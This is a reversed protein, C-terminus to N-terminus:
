SGRLPQSRLVFRAYVRVVAEDDLAVVLGGARLQARAYRAIERKLARRHAPQPFVEGRRIRTITSPNLGVARATERVNMEKLVAVWDGNWDGADKEVYVILPDGDRAVLGAAIEDLVNAEKGIHAIPPVARVGRRALLGRAHGRANKTEPRTRFSRLVDRYTRVGVVDPGLAYGDREFVSESALTFARGRPDYVNRWPLKAWQAPDREFPAVLVFREPDAGPPLGGRAAHAVLLFGYPKVQAAYPLGENMTEFPRLLRPHSATFRSLAPFPLWAPEPWEIGLADQALIWAWAEEVWDQSESEADRPDLYVGGLAHKSAKVIRPTGDRGLTFLCYRKASIAYCHLQRRRNRRRDVNEPELSLISGPVLSRECPNLTGFREIIEDVQAWSLARVCERGQGDREEGQPCPVLGGNRTSVVAMADTDCTVWAGGADTVLRELLALMLRAGGAVLAAFPAFFYEGRDEVASVDAYFRDLGNVALRTPKATPEQRNLEAWIGYSLCNAVVKLANATRRGEADGRQEHRRREEVLAKFVDERMPDIPRADRIRLPRVGELQGSPVLRFVRRIRPARGSLLTAAVVDALTYWLPEESWLPNVGIGYGAWPVYRARVPLIEGDPAVCVFTNLDEWLGPELCDGVTLADLRAQLAARASPGEKVVEVKDCTLFASLRQLVAVTPHMSRFDLTTVPMPQCRMRVEARGGYYASMAFGLTEESFGPQRELIPSVRAERAIAKALSAGSYIRTPPRQIHWREYEAALAQWLAATAAVDERCYDILEASLVGLTVDRKRYPVGFEACASELTQAEGSLAHALMRLDLFSGAGRVHVYPDSGPRVTGLRMRARRADFSRILLRPVATDPRTVGHEDTYEGLVLSYGGAYPEMEAPTWGLAVRSLDFPLNFGVVTARGDLAALFVDQVFQTRTVLRLTRRAERAAGSAPAAAAVYREVLRMAAPHDAELDDPVVIGEEVCTLAPGDTDWSVLCFRYTGVVLAQAADITTEADFVLIAEPRRQPEPSRPARQRPEATAGRRRRRRRKDPARAYARVAVPLPDRERM